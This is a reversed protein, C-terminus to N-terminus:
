EEWPKKKAAKPASPEASPKAYGEAPSYGTINNGEPYSATAPTKKVTITMPIGHLEETSDINPTGAAECITALEKNAIEVAQANANILNLNTWLKRDKYEGELVQFELKWYKNDANKSSEKIESNKIEALYQGPPMASYDGLKEHEESNFASPLQPM